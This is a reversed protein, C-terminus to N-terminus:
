KNLLSFPFCTISLIDLTFHIKTRVQFNNQNQLLGSLFRVWRRYLRQLMATPLASAMSTPWCPKDRPTWQWVTQRRSARAWSVFRRRPLGSTLWTHWRALCSVHRQLLSLLRPPRLVSLRRCILVNLCILSNMDGVYLKFFLFKMM